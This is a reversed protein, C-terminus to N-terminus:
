IRYSPAFHYPRCASHTEELDAGDIIERRRLVTEESFITEKDDLQSEAEDRRHDFVEGDIRVFARADTHYALLCIDCRDSAM